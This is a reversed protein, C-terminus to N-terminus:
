QRMEILQILENLTDFTKGDLETNDLVVRYNDEIFLAFDVLSFSDILGSTILPEDPDIYREPQQLIEDKLHQTIKLIIDDTM